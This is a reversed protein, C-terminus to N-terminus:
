VRFFDLHPLINDHFDQRHAANYEGAMHATLRGSRRVQNWKHDQLAYRLAWPHGLVVRGQDHLELLPEVGQIKGRAFDKFHFRIAAGDTELASLDIPPTQWQISASKILHGVTTEIALQSVSLGVALEVTYGNNSAIQVSNSQGVVRVLSAVAAAAEDFGLTVRDGPGVYGLLSLDVTM